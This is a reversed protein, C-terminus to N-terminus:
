RGRIALEKKMCRDMVVPIRAAALMERAQENVVGEQMWFYKAGIRIAEEAIGPVVESKRFVHVLDAGGPIEVLSGYSKEGLVKRLSPNVPIIRYGREQLYLPVYHSPRDPKDSLGVVAVTKAGNLIRDVLDDL